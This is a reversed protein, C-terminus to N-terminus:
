WGPANLFDQLRIALAVNGEVRLKQQAFASMPNVRGAVLDLFTTSGIRIRCGPNPSPGERVEPVTADLTFTGGGDGDIVFEYIGGIKRARDPNGTIRSALTDTMFQTATASEM